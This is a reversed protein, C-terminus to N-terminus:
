KAGAVQPTRVQESLFEAAPWPGSVRRALQAPKGAQEIMSRFESERGREVLAFVRTGNRGERVRIDRALSGLATQVDSVQQGIVRAMEAKERLYAAGSGPDVPEKAGSPAPYIVCEMQVVSKLRKLDAIFAGEHEGAFAAVAETTEFVSLLRFPVVAAQRLIHHVVGHFEVAFRQMHEPPFPWEVESWLLRLEGAAMVQVAAAGVGTEPLSVGPAQLFGCYVLTRSM